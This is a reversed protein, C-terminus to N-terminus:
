AFFGRTGACKKERLIYGAGKTSAASTTKKTFNPLFFLGLKKVLSSWSSKQSVGRFNTKPILKSPRQLPTGDCSFAEM